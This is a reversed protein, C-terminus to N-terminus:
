QEDAWSEVATLRIEQDSVQDELATIRRLASALQEEISESPAPDM